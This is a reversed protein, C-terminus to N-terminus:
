GGVASYRRIGRYWAFRALVYAAIVWAAQTLMGKLLEAGQVKEMYVSIPFYLQYPFPTLFLIKQIAEPLIDLPFLHGSAIYEFAFVIFIFTSVELVWFALMALAYSIFFQLLATMLISCAFFLLTRPDEPLVFHQRLALIFLSLPLIAVALYAARGALFLMLRYRLYDIPKLIFQSIAGDRIDAAIQWDDENVATLADVVTTLLYYSIMQTLTYTGVTSGPEKDAYITRWVYLLAVLPILGFLARALFNFRYTLNNQLGIALVHRYKRM